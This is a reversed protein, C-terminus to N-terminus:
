LLPHQVAFSASLLSYGISVLILGGVLAVVDSSLAWLGGSRNVLRSALNRANVALFALTAVAIATGVAMALVAGVGAWAMGSAKAFVLVIVAGTCPRLGIALIVGVATKFNKAEAVQDPSPGHNHCCGSGHHHDHGHHHEHGHHHGHEHHHGHGQHHEHDHHHDHGHSEAARGRFFAVGSRLARLVLVLGLALVLAFSLRESWNVAQSTDRPLWGALYILGYVLVLAVVGQCLAAISALAVGRRVQEPHTLLYTTLVAKGHGPGAAHFIGYLFSAAVMAWGAALGGNEGLQRLGETLERHFARQQAYIWTVLESWLSADGGAATAAQAALPATMVFAVALCPRGLPM